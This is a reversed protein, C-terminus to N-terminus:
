RKNKAPKKKAPKKRSGADDYAAAMAAIRAQMRARLAAPALVVADEGLALLQGCAHEISEIPLAIRTWVADTGVASATREVAANAAASLERVKKMGRATVTLVAVDTYIGAEFRQTSERWFAALQFTRPYAFGTKLVTWQRINSLRYTRSPKGAEVAAVLYWIGAKLVLGLPKVVRDVLGSWREYRMSLARQHWVAHAVDQLCPPPPAARYWDIPDMHLRAGVRLADERWAAPVSALMKLRASASAAGLGLETAAAPLGALLLAQAESGTLGTLETSWGARLQFGGERGRESWVPVGAASLHDIDRLITRVSVELEAALVPASTRGRTQLLMLLSLLRGARM